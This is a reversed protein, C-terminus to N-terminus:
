EDKKNDINSKNIPSPANKNEDEKIKIPQANEAATSDQKKQLELAAIDGIRKEEAEKAVQIRATREKLREDAMIKDDGPDHTYIDDKDIPKENIRWVLGKLTRENVHLEKEPYTKGDPEVRFEITQIQKNEITM